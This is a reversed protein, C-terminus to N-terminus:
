QKAAVLPELPSLEAWAAEDVFWFLSNLEALERRVARLQDTVTQYDFSYKQLAAYNQAPPIAELIQRQQELELEKEQAAKLLDQTFLLRNILAISEHHLRETQMAQQRRTQRIQRSIHGRTDIWMFLDASARVEEADWWRERGFARQYIPPSSIFINLEPWYRLKLGSLQARAAELEIAALRLQLQAVRNTDDLPLQDVHYRLQPLGNTALVWRFQHNGLLESARQQLSEHEQERALARLEAQTLMIQGTFLDIAGFAQAIAIQNQVHRSQEEVDEAFWFLKYLEILQERDVLAAVTEARLQQLRAIYLRAGFSVLGPLNFFSDASFTADNPSIQPIDVLRKSIGARLNLTPTLDRFIQRVAEQTNTVETQAQRLKLNNARLEAVAAHWDIEREPRQAQYTVNTQWTAGLAGAREAVKERPSACGSILTLVVALCILHLPLASNIRPM